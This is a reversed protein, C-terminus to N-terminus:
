RLFLPVAQVKQERKLSHMMEAEVLRQKEVQGQCLVNAIGFSHTQFM